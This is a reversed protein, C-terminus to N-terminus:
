LSGRANQGQQLNMQNLIPQGTISMWAGLFINRQTDTLGQSAGLLHAVFKQNMTAFRPDDSYLFMLALLGTQYIYSYEDPIPSWTGNLSTFLAAKKQITISIPYAKDPVPMLRFVINGNGDDVQAAIDRSRAQSTDLALDIKPSMEYWKSPTAVVDQISANEIWGFNTVSQSYDQTGPIATFTIIQRNWRWVFPPGLITQKIINASTLIPEKADGLSLPRNYVFKTCFDLSGSLTISSNAM